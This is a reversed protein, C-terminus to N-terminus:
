GLECLNQLIGALLLATGGATVVLYLGPSSGMATSQGTLFHMVGYLGQNHGNSRTSRNTHAPKLLILLSRIGWGLSFGAVTTALRGVPRRICWRVAIDSTYKWDMFMQYHGSCLSLCGTSQNRCEICSTFFNRRFLLLFLIGLGFCRQFLTKWPIQALYRSLAGPCWCPFAVMIQPSIPVNSSLTIFDQHTTRLPCVHM